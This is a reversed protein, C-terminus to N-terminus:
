SIIRKRKQDRNKNSCRGFSFLVAAGCQTIGNSKPLGCFDGGGAVNLEGCVGPLYVSLQAIPWTGGSFVGCRGGGWLLAGDRGGIGLRGLFFKVRSNNRGFFLEARSQFNQSM